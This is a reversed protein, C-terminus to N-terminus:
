TPEHEAEIGCEAMVARTQNVVATVEQAADIAWVRGLLTAVRREPTEGARHRRLREAFSDPMDDRRVALADGCRPCQALEPVLDLDCRRCTRRLAVRQALVEDPADLMVTGAICAQGAAAADHIDRVQAAGRPYGEVLTWRASCDRIFQSFAHKVIEDPLLDRRAIAETFPAMTVDGSRALRECFNRVKFHDITSCHDSVLERAVTSKGSGPPGM